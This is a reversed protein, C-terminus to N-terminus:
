LCATYAEKLSSASRDVNPGRVRYMVVTPRKNDRYRIFTWDELHIASYLNPGECEILKKKITKLNVQTGPSAILYGPKPQAVGASPAPLTMIEDFCLECLASIQYEHEGATSYTRAGPAQKCRVCVHAAKAESRTMSFMRRATADVFDDKDQGSLVLMRVNSSMSLPLSGCLSVLSSVPSCRHLTVLRSWGLLLDM